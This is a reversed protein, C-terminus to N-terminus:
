EEHAEKIVTDKSIILFTDFVPYRTTLTYNNKSCDYVFMSEIDIKYFRKFTELSAPYYSNKEQFSEIKSKLNLATVIVLCNKEEIQPKFMKMPKIYLILLIVVLMLITLIKYLNKNM